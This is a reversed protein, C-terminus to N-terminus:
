KQRTSAQLALLSNTSSRRSGGAAPHAAADNGQSGKPPQATQNAAQQQKQARKAALLAAEAAPDLQTVLLKGRSGIGSSEPSQLELGDEVDSTSAAADYTGSPLAADLEALL